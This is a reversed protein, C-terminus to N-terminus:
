VVVHGSFGVNKLKPRLTDVCLCVTDVGSAVPKLVPESLLDVNVDCQRVPTHHVLSEYFEESTFCLSAGPDVLVHAARLQCKQQKGRGGGHTTM